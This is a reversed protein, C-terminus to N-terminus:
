YWHHEHQVPECHPPDIKAWEFVKEWKLAAHYWSLDQSMAQIQMARWMRPNEHYLKCANSVCYMFSGVNMENFLWGTGPGLDAMEAQIGHRDNPDKDRAVAAAVAIDPDDEAYPNHRVVTDNLGGTAHAIPLTGYRMAYLQNLGCPEFRSPMLLIDCGATIRHAMPVSFGVWGRFKDHYAAEAWQMFQELEELGSGLMIVQVDENMMDAISDRILDPGKQWDLRGIFGLLPVDDRVELGMERQLARKCEMKGSLDSVDFPAEIHEDASPNWEDMDIGNVVGDLRHVRQELMGELGKGGLPTVIERAYGESVTLVRDSTAIAGKLINVVLGLDLEHARMHEPFQYELCSYWEGPVGLNGFTVHPEVGQHLINHIAAITRANKYTGHPRYKSAVLLPVLGAHWDNAVFVVDDGYTGTFGNASAGEGFDIVLPAECAAHSLLTFRFQNDGYGGEADGYLEGIREYSDHKVFVFDVGDKVQHMYGVEHLGGFCELSKNSCTDFAGRFLADEKKGTQYYPSVVMVRHGRKVLERPLAGCVDALGGTKSWPAVESSVFVISMPQETKQYVPPPRPKVGTGAAAAQGKRARAEADRQRAASMKDYESFGVRVDGEGLYPLEMGLYADKSSAGGLYSMDKKKSEPEPNNARDREEQAVRLAELAADSLDTKLKENDEKLRQIQAFIEEATESFFFIEVRELVPFSPLAVDTLRARARRRPGVDLHTARRGPFRSPTERRSLRAM